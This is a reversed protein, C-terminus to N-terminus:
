PKNRVYQILKNTLKIDEPEYNENVVQSLINVGALIEPRTHLLCALKHRTTRFDHFTAKLSIENIAKAYAAQELFCQIIKPINVGAFLFPPFERPKSEFTEPILNTLKQFQKNGCSLTDDVYVDTTVQM